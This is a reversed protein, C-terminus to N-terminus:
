LNRGQRYIKANWGNRERYNESKEAINKVGESLEYQLRELQNEEIANYVQVEELDHNDVVHCDGDQDQSIEVEINWEELGIEWAERFEDM